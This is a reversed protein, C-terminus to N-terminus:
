DINMQHNHCYSALEKAEHHLDLLSLVHSCDSNFNLTNDAGVLILAQTVM